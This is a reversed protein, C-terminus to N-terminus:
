IGELKQMDRILVGIKTGMLFYTMGGKIIGVLSYDYIITEDIKSISIFWIGCGSIGRPNPGSDVREGTILDTMNQGYEFVYHRGEDLGRNDYIQKSAPSTLYMQAGTHVINNEDKINAAPYGVILYQTSPVDFILDGLKEQSLFVQSKGLLEALDRELVIYALDTDNDKELDTSDNHGKIMVVGNTTSVFLKNGKDYIDRIVHSATFIFYQNNIKVLVGTACPSYDYPGVSKQLLQVTHHYIKEGIAFAQKDFDDPLLAKNMEITKM